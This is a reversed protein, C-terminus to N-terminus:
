ARELRMRLMAEAMGVLRGCIRAADILGVACRRRVAHAIADRLGRLTRHRSYGDGARLANLAQGRGRQFHRVLLHSLRLERQTRVHWVGADPIYMVCGGGDRLRDQWETETGGLLRLDERFPGVRDVAARRVAMNGGWVHSVEVPRGGLDLESEGLPEAGCTRPPRGDYRLHMPGGACGAHPHALFGDVMASLWEPPVEEDDDVFCVPDGSSHALALNRASNLGGHERRVYRVPPREIRSRLADVVTRTDDTSGDDAIVVEYADSPYDLRLITQLCRELREARNYTPIAVTVFPRAPESM